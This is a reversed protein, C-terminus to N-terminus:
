EFNLLILDSTHDYSMQSIIKSVTDVREYSILSFVDSLQTNALM